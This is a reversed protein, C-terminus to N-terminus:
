FFFCFFSGRLSGDDFVWRCFFFFLFNFPFISISTSVIFYKTTKIQFLPFLVARVSLLVRRRNFFYKQRFFLLSKRNMHAYILCFLLRNWVRVNRKQKMMTRQENSMCVCLFSKLLFISPFFQFIISSSQWTCTFQVWVSWFGNTMWESQPTEEEKQRHREDFKTCMLHSNVTFRIRNSMWKVYLIWM